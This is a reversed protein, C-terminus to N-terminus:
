RRGRTRVNHNRIGFAVFGAVICAPLVVVFSTRVAGIYADKVQQRVEDSALLTTDFLATVSQRIRDISAAPLVGQAALTRLRSTLTNIFITGAISVGIMPGTRQFYGVISTAQPILQPDNTFEAQVGMITNQFAMGFGTGMLIQWGLLWRTDLLRQKILPGAGTAALWPGLVVFIKYYGIRKVLIGAISLAVVSSIMFPLIAVGSKLPSYGYVQYLLPLYTLTVGFLVNQFFGALASGWVTRNTLLHLPVMPHSRRQTSPTVSNYHKSLYLEWGLFIVLLTPSLILLALMTPSNWRFVDGGWQLALTLCTTMGLTLVNGIWDVARLRSLWSQWNSQQPTGELRLSLPLRVPYSPLAFYVATAGIAGIPLNIWFCWRWTLRDTFAGGLAPGCLSASTFVAGLSAYHLSRDELRVVQGVITHMGVVFGGAGFGSIARGFVLLAFTPAAASLASGIEFILITSLFTLKPPSITYLQGFTLTSTAQALFFANVVWPLQALADFHSSLIPLAPAVITQDLAIIMSCFVIGGILMYLRRGQLTPRGDDEEASAVDGGEVTRQIDEPDVVTTGSLPSAHAADKEDVFEKQDRRSGDGSAPAVRSTYDHSGPHADLTPTFKEHIESAPPSGSM